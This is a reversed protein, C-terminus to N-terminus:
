KKDKKKKRAIMIENIIVFIIFLGLLVGGVIYYVLNPEGSGASPAFAIVAIMALVLFYVIFRYVVKKM